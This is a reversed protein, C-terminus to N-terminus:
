AGTGVDGSRAAVVADDPLAAGIARRLHGDRDAPGPRRSLTMKNPWRANQENDNSTAVIDAALTGM